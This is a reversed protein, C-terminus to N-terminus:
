VNLCTLIKEKSIISFYYAYIYLSSGIDIVSHTCIWIAATLNIWHTSASNNLGVADACTQILSCQCKSLQFLTSTCHDNMKYIFSLLISSPSISEQYLLKKSFSLNPRVFFFVNNNENRDKAEGKKAFQTRKKKRIIKWVHILWWLQADM